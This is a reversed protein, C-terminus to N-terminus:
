NNSHLEWLHEVLDAQLQHHIDRNRIVAHNNIFEWLPTAVGHSAEVPEGMETYSYDINEMDREDEITMNHMIVCANMIYYIDEQNWLRCPGRVIHYRAQLLGFACEVDKRLSEQVRAFHKKKNGHPAPITKVFSAWAPYIGNALYYGMKYDHGNITYHVEPAKGEALKAFLPSRHLVNIDNHSGPMGFFAHWIWRDKSAVAELIITPEQVHGSYQGQWGTPCNKWAWHMCDIRGLM